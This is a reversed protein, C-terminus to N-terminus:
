ALDVSSNMAPRTRGSLFTDCRSKHWNQMLTFLTLTHLLVFAPHHELQTLRPTFTAATKRTEDDDGVVLLASENAIGSPNAGAPSGLANEEKSSPKTLLRSSDSRAPSIPSGAARVLEFADGTEALAFPFSVFFASFLGPVAFFSSALETGTISAGGSGIM